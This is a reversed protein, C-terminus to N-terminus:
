QIRYSRPYPLQLHPIHSHRSLPTGPGVGAQRENEQSWTCTAPFGPSCWSSGPALTGSGPPVVWRGGPRGGPFRPHPACSACTVQQPRAPPALGTVVLRAIFLRDQRHHTKRGPARSHWVWSAGLAWSPASYAPSCSHHSDLGQSSLLLSPM